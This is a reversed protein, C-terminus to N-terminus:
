CFRFDGGFDSASKRASDAAAKEKKVGRPKQDPGFNEQGTTSGVAKFQQRGTLGADADSDHKM